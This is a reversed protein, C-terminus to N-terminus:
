DTEWTLVDQHKQDVKVLKLSKITKSSGDMYDVRLSVLKPWEVTDTFWLHEFTYSGFDQPKIPGIGRVRKIASGAFRDRVPDDVANMGILEVRIYKITKKTPNYVELKFGTAETYESEDYVSFDLVSIGHRAPADYAKLAAGEAVHRYADGEEELASFDLKALIQDDLEPLRARSEETMFVASNEVFFRQKGYYAVLYDKAEGYAPHCRYHGAVVVAMREFLMKGNGGRCAEMTRYAYSSQLLMGLPPDAGESAMAISPLLLFPLCCTHLARSLLSLHSM